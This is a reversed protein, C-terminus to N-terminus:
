SMHNEIEDITPDKYINLGPDRDAIEIQDKYNKPYFESSDARRAYYGSNKDLAVIEVNDVKKYFQNLNNLSPYIEENTKNKAYYPELAKNIALLDDGIESKAYIDRGHKKAYIEENDGQKLYFEKKNKLKPYYEYTINNIKVSAYYKADNKKAFFEDKNKLKAYIPLKKSNCGYFQHNHKELYKENNNSDTKYIPTDKTINLPYIITNEREIFIDEDLHNKAPYEIKDNGKSTKYAYFQIGSATAFYEDNIGNKAYKINGNNSIYYEGHSLRPYLEINDANKYYPINIKLVRREHDVLNDGLPCVPYGDKDLAFYESFNGSADRRKAMINIGDKFLYHETGNKMKAYIEDNNLDKAYVGAGYYQNGLNDIEYNM